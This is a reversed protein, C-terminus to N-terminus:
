PADEAKAIELAILRNWMVRLAKAEIQRIRERTLGVLDGVEELTHGGRGAVDLTCTERADASRRTFEALHHRCRTHPCPRPGRECEARTVPLSRM